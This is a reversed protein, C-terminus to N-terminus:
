LNYGTGCKNKREGEGVFAISNRAITKDKTSKQRVQNPLKTERKGIEAMM